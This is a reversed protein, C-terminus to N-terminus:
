NNKRYLVNVSATSQITVNNTTSGYLHVINNSDLVIGSLSIYPALSRDNLNYGIVGLATYGSASVNFAIDINGATLSQTTGLQVNGNVITSKQALTNSLTSINETNTDVLDKLAKAQTADLPSGALTTTLNAVLDNQRLVPDVSPMTEEDDPVWYAINSPRNEITDWEVDSAFPQYGSETDLHTVDKVVYMKPNPSYPVGQDDEAVTIIFGEKVDNATLAFREDDDQVAKLTENQQALSLVGNVLDAKYQLLIQKTVKKSIGDVVAYLLDSNGVDSASPLESLMMDIAQAM